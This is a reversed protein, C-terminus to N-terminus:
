EPPTQLQSAANIGAAVEPLIGLEVYIPRVARRLQELQSSFWIAVILCLSGGIIVTQPAGFRSAIAGAFLSGFPMMGMIAMTYFSMVRGRKGEEVITQVITNSSSMVQMMSFGILLMLPLSTWLSPSFAFLILGGAFTFATISILKGLGVITKRMALLIASLFAGLGSAGTLFGLTNPGGHLVNTAFVPLLVSYPVGFLSVAVLLLLISRIPAFGWAYKWGEKL